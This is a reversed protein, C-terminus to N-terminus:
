QSSRVPRVYNYSGKDGSRVSGYSFSVCWARDSDWACSTLTWYWDDTKTDPFIDKDIAPTHKTHDVLSFLERSTPLRCGIRECEKKAEEWTFKKELTPYWILKEQTDTVTGDSHRIFRGDKSRIVPVPLVILPYVLRDRIEKLVDRVELMIQVDLVFNIAQGKISKRGSGEGGM